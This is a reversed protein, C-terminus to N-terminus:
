AHSSNLRTSKRDEGLIGEIKGEIEKGGYRFEELLLKDGIKTLLFSFSTGPYGDVMRMEVPTNTYLEVDRLFQSEVYRTELGLREVVTQMLDPSAIAEMENAVTNNARLGPMVANLQGINRMASYQDSEDIIVKATRNYTNPTKYIYLGAACLCIFVCAVYWWKYDWVMHWIDAISLNSEEEHNNQYQSTYNESM